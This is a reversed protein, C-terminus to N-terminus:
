ETKTSNINKVLMLTQRYHCYKCLVDETTTTVDSDTINKTVEQAMEGHLCGETQGGSKVAEYILMAMCPSSIKIKM